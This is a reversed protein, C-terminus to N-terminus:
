ARFRPAIMGAGCGRMQKEGKRKSCPQVPDPELHVVCKDARVAPGFHSYTRGGARSATGVVLCAPGVVREVVAEVKGLGVVLIGGKLFFLFGVVNKGGYNRKKQEQHEQQAVNESRCSREFVATVTKGIRSTRGGPACSYQSRLM